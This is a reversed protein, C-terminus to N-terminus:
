TRFSELEFVYQLFIIFMSSMTITHWFRRSPHSFTLMAWFYISALLPLWILAAGSALFNVILTLYTLYDFKSIIWTRLIAASTIELRSVKLKEAHQHIDISSSLVPIIDMTQDHRDDISSVREDHITTPRHRDSVISSMSTGNVFTDKVRIQRSLRPSSLTRFANVIHHNIHEVTTIFRVSESPYKLYSKADAIVQRIILLTRIQHGFYNMLRSNM